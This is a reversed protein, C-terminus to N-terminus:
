RSDVTMGTEAVVQDVIAGVERPGCHRYEHGQWDANPAQKCRDLCDVAKLEVMDALGADKLRRELTAWLERGGSRWCNKKTCIRIPCAACIASGDAARVSSVVFKRRSGGEQVGIAVIEDGLAMKGTLQERLDKPVKLYLEEEGVRLVMRRKGFVDRFFGRFAGRLESLPSATSSM